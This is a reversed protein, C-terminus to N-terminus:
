RMFQGLVSKLEDPWELTDLTALEAWAPDLRVLDNFYVTADDYAHNMAAAITLLALANEQKEAPFGIRQGAQLFQYGREMNGTLLAVWGARLAFNGDDPYRHMGTTLITMAQQPDANEFATYAAEAYDGPIQTELPHETILEIWIPHAKQYDGMATLALAEARMCPEAPAGLKRATNALGFTTEADEKHASFALAARMCALAFRPKGVTELTEPDALRDAVAKRQEPTSSEPVEIAVLEDQVNQRIAELAPEFDAMEWGQWDQRSRIEAMKPFEEPWRSLANARQGRLWAARSLAIQRLFDPLDTASELCSAIWEPHESKLALALAAAAAPGKGGADAIATLIEAEDGTSFAAAMRQSALWPSKGDDKGTVAAALQDHWPTGALAGSRTLIDPWSKGTFDARALRDWLPILAAPKSEEPSIGALAVRLPAFDLTPFITAISDFDCTRSAVVRVAGHIRPFTRERDDHRVGALSECLLELAALDDPTLASKEEEGAKTAPPALLQHVIVEGNEAGTIVHDAAFAAATIASDVVIPAHPGTLIELSNEQVSFPATEPDRMLGNWLNPRLNWPFREVLATLDLSGDDPDQYAIISQAPPQHPGQSVLTLVANGDRSFQADLLSVPDPIPISSVAEVPSVPMEMLSGDAQLVRLKERDLYAALPRPADASAPDSIRLSEGTAVDRIYWVLKGEVMTPHAMLLGEPSFVVTATPTVSDPLPGLDRVPKLTRADCLLTVPGRSIVMSKEDPTFIMARTAVHNQPFLVSTIERTALDWRVTTDATGTLNVWLTDPAAFAIQGVPQPHRLVLTPFNWVTEGLIRAAMELAEHSAPDARLASVLLALAEGPLKEDLRERAQDVRAAALQAALERTAIAVEPSVEAPQPAATETEPKCGSVLTALALIAARGPWRDRSRATLTSGSRSPMKWPFSRRPGGNM